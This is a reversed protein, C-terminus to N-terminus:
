LQHPALFSITEKHPKLFCQIILPIKRKNKRKKKLTKSRKINSNTRKGPNKRKIV